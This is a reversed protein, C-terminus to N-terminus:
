TKPPVAELAVHYGLHELRKVLRKASHEPRLKDFYDAGMERNPEKRLILYYAIVLISHAVAMIARKQGRRPALRHYQASLYTDRTHAAGHAARVLATTLALDGKRTRGSHRKGASENNGPAVGAWAALHNASPFRSMDIGIESVIVEATQRAVGPITDLLAVYDQYPACCTEIEQDFHAITDDLGDIQCLLETLLFRHHPQVRGELAKTLQDRKKRLQGKALEAMRTPSTQGEILAELMARGSVGVVNSAVSALKLNASELVKQIRNILTSREQVFNTRHRTLERLQRQGQPPVFSARLLGHKLLDAIWEADNVDTKRGPVMKVHQANVLLVQFNPELINFVPKWYEGTSEMAVQTVGYLTLWDSLALLDCTMTQFTRTERYWAGQGDRVSLAAVVTKKHVDLGACHTHVVDM